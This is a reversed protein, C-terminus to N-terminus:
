GACTGFGSQCGTGCYIDTSGCYGYESCCNGFVSGGCTQGGGTAGCSGDVSVPASA